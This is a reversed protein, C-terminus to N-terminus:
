SAQQACANYKAFAQKKVARPADPKGNTEFTLKQGSTPSHEPLLSIETVSVIVCVSIILGANVSVSVISM